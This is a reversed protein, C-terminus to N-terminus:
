YINMKDKIQLILVNMMNGRTAIIASTVVTHEAKMKNQIMKRAQTDNTMVSINQWMELARLM